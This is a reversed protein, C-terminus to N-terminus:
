AAGIGRKVEQVADQDLGLLQQLQQMYAEEEPTDVVVAVLSAAYVERATAPSSAAAIEQVSRPAELERQLFAQEEQSLNLAQLRGMIQQREDADLVGDAHAAAIMARILLVATEEGAPADVQPPPVAIGSGVGPPPPPPAAAQGGPPPPPPAAPRGAHPAAPPQTSGSRSSNEGLTGHEKYHEAAAWVMGLVGMGIAAKSGFGSGVNGKGLAEGLLGGLLKKSDFM